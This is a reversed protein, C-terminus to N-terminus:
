LLLLVGTALGKAYPVWTAPPFTIDMWISVINTLGIQVLWAAGIGVASGLMDMAIFETWLMSSIYQKSAGLCRMVAIGDIHRVNFRRASLAIAVAALLITLLAVLSLFNEARNLARQLEPRHNELTLIEQGAKLQKEVWHHFSGVEEKGGKRLLRYSARSRLALIGTRDLEQVNELVRPAINVFQMSRDPEYAIVKDIVLEIDGVHLVDNPKLKFRQLVQPDVWVTGPKPAGSTVYTDSSVGWKKFISFEGALQYNDSVAKISSLVTATDSSVM